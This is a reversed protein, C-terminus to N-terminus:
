MTPFLIIEYLFVGRLLKCCYFNGLMDAHGEGSTICARVKVLEMDLESQQVACQLNVGGKEKKRFTIQPPEQWFLCILPFHDVFLVWRLSTWLCECFNKHFRHSCPWDAVSVFIGKRRQINANVTILFDYSLSLSGNIIVKKIGKLDCSVSLSDNIIVKFDCLSM